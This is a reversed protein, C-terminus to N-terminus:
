HTGYIRKVIEWTVPRVPSTAGPGVVEVCAVAVSQIYSGSFGILQVHYESGLPVGVQTLDLPGISEWVGGCQWPFGRAIFVLAGALDPTCGVVPERQGRIEVYLPATSPRGYTLVRITVPGINVLPPFGVRGALIRFTRGCNMGYTELTDMPAESCFSGPEFCSLLESPQAHLDAPPRALMLLSAFVLSQPKMSLRLPGEGNGL